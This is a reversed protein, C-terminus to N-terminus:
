SVDGMCQSVQVYFIFIRPQILVHGILIFGPLSIKQIVHSAMVEYFSQRERQLHGNGLLRDVKQINSSEKNANSISRGLGTLYLTNSSIAAECTVMLSKLRNKHVQPLKEEFTKHLLEMVHMITFRIIDLFVIQDCSMM